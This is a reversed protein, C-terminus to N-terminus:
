GAPCGPCIALQTLIEPAPLNPVVPLTVLGPDADIGSEVQEVREVSGAGDLLQLGVGGQLLESVRGALTGDEMLQYLYEGPCSTNAHDRHGGVETPDIGWEDIGWAVMRALSEVQAPSPDQGDFNGDVMVLFHGSPDYNTFTDGRGEPSRGEYVNGNRDIVYHYAIDPWGQDQHYRQYSRIRAPADANAGDFSRASHHITVQEIAHPELSGTPASRWGEKGIVEVGPRDKPGILDLGALDGVVGAVPIWDDEGFQYTADAVQLRNANSLLLSRDVTRYLGVTELQDGDWDGSFIRDHAEGYFFATQAPGTTQDFRMYVLGSSERHLGIDATGDGDFDGSFARDGPNGFFMELDPLVGRDESGLQNAVFVQGTAPRHVSISDCGDGDFDGVLPRDGHEGMYFRIDATGITNANRLYVFGDSVRYLGPTDVGDCDWDGLLPEDGPVGFYLSALAGDPTPLLYQSTAGDVFGLTDPQQSTAEGEAVPNPAEQASLGVTSLLQVLLTVLVITTGLRRGM